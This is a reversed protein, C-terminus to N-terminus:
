GEGEGNGAHGAKRWAARYLAVMEKVREGLPIAM